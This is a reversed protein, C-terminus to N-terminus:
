EFGQFFDRAAYYRTQLWFRIRQWTTVTIPPPMAEAIGDLEAQYECEVSRGQGVTPHLWVVGGPKGDERAAAVGRRTMYAPDHCYKCAAAGRAQPNWRQGLPAPRLLSEVHHRFNNNGDNAAFTNHPCFTWRYADDFVAHCDPCEVIM